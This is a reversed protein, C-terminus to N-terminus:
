HAALAKFLQEASEHSLVWSGQDVLQLPTTQAPSKPGSITVTALAQGPTTPVVNVVDFNFPLEGDRFARRLEGDLHHGEEQTLGNEVLNGKEKYGIGADSLRTLMGSVEEPSPLPAGSPAPAPAPAPAPELPLPASLVTTPLDIPAPLASAVGAASVGIVAFAVVGSAFLKRM